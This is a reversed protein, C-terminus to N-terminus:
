EITGTYEKKRRIRRLLKMKKKRKRKMRKGNKAGVTVGRKGISASIAPHNLEM